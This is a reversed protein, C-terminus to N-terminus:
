DYISFQSSIVILEDCMVIFVLILQTNKLILILRNKTLAGIRLSTKTENNEIM